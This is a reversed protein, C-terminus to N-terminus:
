LHCSRIGFDVWGLNVGDPTWVLIGEQAWQIFFQYARIGKLKGYGIDRFIGHGSPFQAVEGDCFDIIEGIGTMYGSERGNKNTFM